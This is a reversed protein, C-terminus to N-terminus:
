RQLIPYKHDNLSSVHICCDQYLVGSQCSQREAQANQLDLHLNRFVYVGLFFVCQAFQTANTFSNVGHVNLSYSGFHVELCCLKIRNKINKDIMNLVSCSESM